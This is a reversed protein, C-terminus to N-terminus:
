LPNDPQALQAGCQLLHPLHGSCPPLPSHWCTCRVCHIWQGHIYFPLETCEHATSHLCFHVVLLHVDDSSHIQTRVDNNNTHVKNVSCRCLLILLLLGQKLGRFHKDAVYMRVYTRVYFMKVKTVTLSRRPWFMKCSNNNGCSQETFRTGHEHM